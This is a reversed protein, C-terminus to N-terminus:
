CVQFLLRCDSRDGSIRERITWLSNSRTLRARLHLSQEVHGIELALHFEFTEPRLPLAARATPGM